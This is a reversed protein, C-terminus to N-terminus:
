GTPSSCTSRPNKSCRGPRSRRRGRRPMRPRTKARRAKVVLRTTAEDDAVLVRMDSRRSKSPSPPASAARVRRHGDEVLRPRPRRTRGARGLAELKACIETLRLRRHQRERGQPHPRHTRRNPPRRRRPAEHLAALLQKATTSTSTSSRPSSSATAATSIASCQSARRSRAIHSTTPADTRRRGGRCRQSALSGANSHRPSRQRASGTQHHLRGHRRRPVGRPRRADRRGDDRDRPPPPRNRSRDRPAPPDSRLRGDRADPLGHARRRLQGVTIADLAERGNNAVDSRYGLKALMRTAVLQNMSNDEVLLVVADNRECPPTSRRANTTTRQTPDAAGAYQTRRRSLQVAGVPPGAQDLTGSLEAQEPSTRPSAARPASCSCSRPPPQRTPRSRAHSSSATWTPCTSTSFRSTTRSASRPRPASVARTRGARRRGRRAPHGM